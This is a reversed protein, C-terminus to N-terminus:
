QYFYIYFRCNSKYLDNIFLIKHNKLDYDFLVPYKFVVLGVFYLKMPKTSHIFM